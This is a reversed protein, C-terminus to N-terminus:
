IKAITKRCNKLKFSQEQSKSCFFIKLFMAFHKLLYEKRSSPLSLAINSCPKLDKSFNQKQDTMISYEKNM